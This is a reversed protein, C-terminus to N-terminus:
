AYEDYAMASWTKWWASIRASPSHPGGVLAETRKYVETNPLQGDFIDQTKGLGIIEEVEAAAQAARAEQEFPQSIYLDFYNDQTPTKIAWLQKELSMAVGFTVPSEQRQIVHTCEHLLVGRVVRTLDMVQKRSIKSPIIKQNPLLIDINSNATVLSVDHYPGIKAALSVRVTSLRSSTMQKQTWALINWKSSVLFRMIETSIELCELRETANTLHM